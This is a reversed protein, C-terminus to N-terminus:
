LLFNFPFKMDILDFVTYFVNFPLYVKQGNCLYTYMCVIFSVALGNCHGSHLCINKETKWFVKKRVNKM